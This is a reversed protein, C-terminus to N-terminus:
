CNRVIIPHPTNFFNSLLSLSLHLSCLFPRSDKSFTVKPKPNCFFIKNISTKKLYHGPQVLETPETWDTESKLFQFRVPNTKHNKLQNIRNKKTRNKKNKRNIRNNPKKWVGLLWSSLPLSILERVQFSWGGVCWIVNLLFNWDGSAQVICMWGRTWRFLLVM